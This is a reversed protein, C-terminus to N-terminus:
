KSLFEDDFRFFWPKRTPRKYRCQRSITTQPCGTERVAERISGYKGLIKNTATEYMIVPKSQSDKYGKDNILLGDDIAKQINESWTTWYLNEVRNDTKINNKHGVIPLNNPNELFTEAIIIHSRRKKKIYKGNNKIYEKITCYKYGQTIFQEYKFFKGYNKTPTLKNKDWRNPVMRTEQGYIDGNPTCWALANAIQKANKPLTDYYQKM